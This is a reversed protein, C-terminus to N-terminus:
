KLLSGTDGVKWQKNEFIYLMTRQVEHETETKYKIDVIMWDDLGKFFM